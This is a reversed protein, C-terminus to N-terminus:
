VVDVTQLLDTVRHEAAGHVRTQGLHAGGAGRAEAQDGAARQLHRVDVQGLLEGVQDDGLTAELGVAADDGRAVLDELLEHVQLALLRLVPTHAPVATRGDRSRAIRPVDCGYLSRAERM